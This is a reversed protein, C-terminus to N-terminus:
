GTGWRRPGVQGSTGFTTDLQGNAQYGVLAFDMAAPAGVGGGLLLRDDARVALAFAEAHGPFTDVNLGFLGFSTSDLDGNRRRLPRSVDAGLHRRQPVGAVIKGVSQLRCGEFWDANLGSFAQIKIGTAM